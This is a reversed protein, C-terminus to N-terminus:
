VCNEPRVEPASYVIRSTGCVSPCFSRQTRETLLRSVCGFATESTADPVCSEAGSEETVSWSESFASRERRQLASAKRTTLVCSGDTVRVGEPIRISSPLWTSNVNLVGIESPSQVSWSSSEARKEMEPDAKVSASVTKEISEVGASITSKTTPFVSPFGLPVTVIVNESLMALACISSVPMSLSETEKVFASSEPFTRVSWYSAAARGDSTYVIRSKRNQSRAPLRVSTVSSVPLRVKPIVAGTVEVGAGSGSLAHFRSTVSPEKAKM